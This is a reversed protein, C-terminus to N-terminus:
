SLRSRARIVAVPCAASRLVGQGVSGLVARKLIGHGRSGVVLLAATRAAAVLTPAAHGEPFLRDAAVEYEKEFGALVQSVYEAADPDAMDLRSPAPAGPLLFVPPATVHVATLSTRRQAAERFAFEVAAMGAESGDVGVVIRGSTGDAGGPWSPPVVVLPPAARGALGHVLPGPRPGSRPGGVVLLDADEATGLLRIAPSGREVLTRVAVGASRRRMHAAADEVLAQAGLRAGDLGVPGTGAQPLVYPDSVVHVLLIDCRRAAAETAAWDLVADQPSRGIGVVVTNSSM